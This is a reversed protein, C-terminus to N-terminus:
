PELPLGKTAHSNKAYFVHSNLASKEKQLHSYLWQDLMEELSFAERPIATEV